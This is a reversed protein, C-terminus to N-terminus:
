RAPDEVSISGQPAAVYNFSPPAYDVKRGVSAESLMEGADALAESRGAQRQQRDACVLRAPKHRGDVHTGLLRNLSMLDQARLGADRNMVAGELQAILGDISGLLLEVRAAPRIRKQHQRVALGHRENLSIRMVMSLCVRASILM